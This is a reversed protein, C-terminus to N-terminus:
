LAADRRSDPLLQDFDPRWDGAAVSFGGTFLNAAVADPTPFGDNARHPRQENNGHM